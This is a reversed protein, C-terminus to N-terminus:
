RTSKFNERNDNNKREKYKKAAHLLKDNVQAPRDLAEFLATANAESLQLVNMHSVVRQAEAIAVNTLFSNLSTAGSLLAARELLERNETTVRATIRETTISQTKM